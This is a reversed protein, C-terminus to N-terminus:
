WSGRYYYITQSKEDIALLRVFDSQSDLLYRHKQTSTPRASLRAFCENAISFDNGSLYGEEWVPVHPTPTTSGLGTYIWNFGNQLLRDYETDSVRFAACYDFDGFWDALSTYDDIMQAATPMTYTVPHDATFAEAFNRTMRSIEIIGLVMCGVVAVLAMLSVLLHRRRQQRVRTQEADQVVAEINSVVEQPTLPTSRTQADTLLTDLQQWVSGSENSKNPGTTDSM